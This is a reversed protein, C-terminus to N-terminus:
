KSNCEGARLNQLRLQGGLWNFVGVEPRPALMGVPEAVLRWIVQEVLRAERRGVGRKAVLRRAAPLTPLVSGDQSSAHAGAM